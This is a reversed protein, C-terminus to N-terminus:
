VADTVPASSRKAPFSRMVPVWALGLIQAAMISKAARRARAAQHNQGRMFSRMRQADSRHAVPFEINRAEHGFRSLDRFPAATGAWRRILLWPPRWSHATLAVRRLRFTRGCEPWM